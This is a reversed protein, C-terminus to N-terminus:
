RRFRMLISDDWLRWESYGDFVETFEAPRYKALLEKELNAIQEGPGEIIEILKFSFPTARSLDSHRQDPKHTIGVKMYRGCDSRLVYLFGSKTRDFGYEACGPCGRGKLHNHPTQEFDGHEHCVIIVKERITKYEVKLYDFKNNHTKIARIIFSNTNSRNLKGVSEVRCRICGNGKLHGHPTQEFEGHEPCIIVVKNRMNTYNVLSYCYHDCHVEKAKEIFLNISHAKSEAACGPCGSGKLHDNPRQDFMKHYPCYISVKTKTSRYVSFAYGYKDGHAARARDIFDKTTVKRPM